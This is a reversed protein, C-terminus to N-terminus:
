KRGRMGPIVRFKSYINAFFFFFFISRDRHNKKFYITLTMSSAFTKNQNVFQSLLHIELNRFKRGKMGPIQFLYKRFFFFFVEIEIIM